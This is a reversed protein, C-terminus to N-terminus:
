GSVDVKYILYSNITWSSKLSYSFDIFEKQKPSLEAGPAKQSGFM